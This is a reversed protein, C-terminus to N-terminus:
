NSSAGTCTAAGWHAPYWNEDFITGSSLLLCYDYELALAKELIPRAGTGEIVPGQYGFRAWSLSLDRLRERTARDCDAAATAYMGFVLRCSKM